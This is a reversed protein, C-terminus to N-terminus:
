PLWSQFRELGSPHCVTILWCSYTSENCNDLTLKRGLSPQGPGSSTCRSLLVVRIMMSVSHHSNGYSFGPDSDEQSVLVFSSTSVSSLSITLRLLFLSIM